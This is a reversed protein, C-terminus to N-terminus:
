PDPSPLRQQSTCAPASDFAIRSGFQKWSPNPAVRGVSKVYYFSDDSQAAVFFALSNGTNCLAPDSALATDAFLGSSWDKWDSSALAQLRTALEGDDGPRGDSGETAAGGGCGVAGALAVALMVRTR